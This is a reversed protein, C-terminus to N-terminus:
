LTGGDVVWQRLDALEDLTARVERMANDIAGLLSINSASLNIRQLAIITRTKGQSMEEYVVLVHELKPVFTMKM